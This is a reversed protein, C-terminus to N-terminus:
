TNSEKMTFLVFVAVSIGAGGYCNDLQMALLSFSTRTKNISLITRAFQRENDNLKIKNNDINKIEIQMEHGNYVNEWYFEVLFEM